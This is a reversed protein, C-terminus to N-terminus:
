FKGSSSGNYGSSSSSTDYGPDRECTSAIPVGAEAPHCSRGSGCGDDKECLSLEGGACDNKCSSGEILSWCCDEYNGCNRYTTCRLPGAAPGADGGADGGDDTGCGIAETRCAAGGGLVCCLHVDVTCRAGGCAFTDTREELPEATDAGGDSAPSDSAPALTEGCAVVVLGSAGLTGAFVAYRRM